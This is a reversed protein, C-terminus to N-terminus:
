PHLISPHRISLIPLHLSSHPLPNAGPRAAGNATLFNAPAPPNSGGGDENVTLHGVPQVVGWRRKDARVADPNGSLPHSRQLISGRPIKNFVRGGGKGRGGEGFVVIDMELGIAAM